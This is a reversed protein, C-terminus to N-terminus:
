GIRMISLVACRTVMVSNELKNRTKRKPDLLQVFYPQPNSLM